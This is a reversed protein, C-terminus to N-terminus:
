VVTKRDVIDWNLKDRFKMITDQSLPIKSIRDWDADTLNLHHHYFEILRILKVHDNWDIVLYSRIYKLMEETLDNQYYMVLDWNVRHTYRVLFELSLQKTKVLMDFDLDNCRDFCLSIFEESVNQMKILLNYDVNIPTSVFIYGSTFGLLNGLVEESISHETMMKNWFQLPLEEKQYAYLDCELNEPEIAPWNKMCAEIMVEEADVGDVKKVISLSATKKSKIMIQRMEDLQDKVNKLDSSSAIVADDLYLKYLEKM